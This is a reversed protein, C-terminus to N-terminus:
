PAGQAQLQKAMRAHSRGAGLRYLTWGVAIFWILLILYLSYISGLVPRLAECMIGIVGTVIGLYAIGKQFVGKVMALSLFLVGVAFLIGGASVSNNQAILSEAATALSARQAVSTAAVYHDSLSVLGGVISFPVLSLVVGVIGVLAGIAASSQSLHKLAVYLALFVVMTLVVPGVFLIQDLIFVSRHLAIYQLTAVGDPLMGRWSPDASIEAEGSAREGRLTEM